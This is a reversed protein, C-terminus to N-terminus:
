LLFKEAKDLLNRANDHTTKQRADEYPMWMFELHEHSLKVEKMETKGLFFVVLKNSMEGNKKYVYTIEERYGKIYKVDAIGTEELLERTATQHETEEGEVHGKVFDFHGGPYKLVLYERKGGRERFLVIGCSKEDIEM